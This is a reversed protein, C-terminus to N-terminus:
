RAIPEAVRSWAPRPATAPAAPSSRLAGEYRWSWRLLTRDEAPFPGQYGRCVECSAAAVPESSCSPCRGRVLRLRGRLLSNLKHIGM